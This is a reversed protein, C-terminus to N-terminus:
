VLDATFGETLRAALLDPQDGVTGLEIVPYSEEQLRARILYLNSNIIKGNEPVEGLELLEDGTVLFAIQPTPYVTVQEIGAAALM